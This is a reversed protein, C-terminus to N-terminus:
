FLERQEKASSGLALGRGLTESVREFTAADAQRQAPTRRSEAVIPLKMRQVKGLAESHRGLYAWYLSPLPCTTKPDFRCGECFDSMRHIYASGAVYPKTTFLDGVGFTGMAHVNPEVVWDYADVYAVWFWDTLERPAVDLLMAINSLVMLRTIHHSYGEDWVAEVVTDLCRLGSAAGWYAPPLSRAAGLHSALSGGDGGESEGDSRPWPEGRWTSWGGDGPRSASPQVVGALVRFGDTLEHAHHMYERWGLIQRVFGERSALPIDDDSAVENVVRRASLRQLNLLSSIQTHFLSRSRTSMADEFPGFTPLCEARAWTWVREADAKTAPIREPTLVGPHHGMTDRVLACVERTLDDVVFTPVEPAAPTGPWPQRNETDFSFRGGVPKGQRMLVGLKRRVYRYFADMRWPPGEQSAIFDDASTLWGEHALLSIKGAEVLPALEARLEREAPRMVEIGGLEGALPELAAAYSSAVVHRVAVGRAAQEIAFHRLNALVLALKQQHYPRRAAKEPCEVVVIGIEKADVRALPGIEDSLQDYPVFLWRRNEERRRGARLAKQFHGV